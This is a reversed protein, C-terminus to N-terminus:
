LPIKGLLQTQLAETIEVEVFQGLLAEEAPFEVLIQDKNRGVLTGPTKGPADALVRTRKGVLKQHAKRGIEEQVALLERFWRSKEEGPVPDEMAAARTGKRPSYIFTFLSVYEVRRILELTKQFDEYSEGPFGVIIDSTFTVGPLKAKAYDILELYQEVTYRRNMEKLIRNSGSQVPLHIHNAVKECDSITDVLERTCDKPHSTMFQLRFDGEIQNLRRLLQSFNVPEPLGKGYSNVNQGLLTIEKYGKAVLQAVEQEIREPRRSRERGRVYPVICYTCFNDCGYMVPVWARCGSERRIPLDETVSGDDPISAFVRKKSQLKELLLAPFQGALHPGFILDVYPYSKRLKERIHQQEMMCGCLCIVLKPNQEKLKKLEGIKGFIRSEANERIACTNYLVLDAQALSQTFAFGMQALMGCFREGDAANQQCGYTHVLAVPTRGLREAMLAGAQEMAAQRKATEEKEAM